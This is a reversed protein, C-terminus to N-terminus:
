PATITLTGSVSLVFFPFLSPIVTRICLDMGTRAGELALSSDLILILLGVGAMAGQLGTKKREM